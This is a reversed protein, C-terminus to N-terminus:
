NFSFSASAAGREATKGTEIAQKLAAPLEGPDTVRIGACGFSEAVQDALRRLDGHLDAPLEGGLVDPHELQGRQAPDEALDDVLRDGEDVRGRQGRLAAHPHLDLGCALARLRAVHCDRGLRIAPTPAPSRVARRAM